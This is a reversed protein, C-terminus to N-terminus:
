PEEGRQNKGTEAGDKQRAVASSASQGSKHLYVTWAREGLYEVKKELAKDGSELALQMLKDLVNQRRLLEEHARIAAAKRRAERAKEADAAQQIAKSKEQAKATEEEMIGVPTEKKGFLREWFTPAPKKVPEDDGAKATYAAMGLALAAAMGWVRLKRM